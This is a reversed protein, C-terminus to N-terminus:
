KGNPTATTLVVLSSSTQTAAFATPTVPLSDDGGENEKKTGGERDRRGLGEASSAGYEGM